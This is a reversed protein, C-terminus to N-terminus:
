KAFVTQLINACALTEAKENSLIVEVTASMESRDVVTAEINVRGSRIPKRYEIELKKTFFIEDDQLVTLMASGAFYDALASLYGGFVVGSGQHVQETVQWSGSVTRQQWQCSVPFGLHRVFPMIRDEPVNGEAAIDLMKTWQSM